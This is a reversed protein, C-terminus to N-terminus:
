VRFREPDQLSPMLAEMGLLRELRRRDQHAAKKGQGIWLRAYEAANNTLEQLQFSIHTDKPNIHTIKKPWKDPDESQLLHM